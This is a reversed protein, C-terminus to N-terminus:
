ELEIWHVFIPYEFAKDQNCNFAPLVGKLAKPSQINWDVFKQCITTSRLKSTYAAIRFKLVLVAIRFKFILVAVNFELAPIASPMM